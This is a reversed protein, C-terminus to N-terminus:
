FIPPLFTSFVAPAVRIAELVYVASCTAAIKPTLTRLTYMRQSVVFSELDNAHSLTTHANVLFGKVPPKVVHAPNLSARSPANM